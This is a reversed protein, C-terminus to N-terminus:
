IEGLLRAVCANCGRVAVVIGLVSGAVLPVALSAFFAYNEHSRLLWLLYGFGGGLLLSAFFLSPRKWDKEPRSGWFCLKNVLTCYGCSM